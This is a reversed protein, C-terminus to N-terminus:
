TKGLVLDVVWCGRVHVQMPDRCHTLIDDSACGADQLADALIPMAGFDRSDYMMNALAAATITRWSPDFTVPRFPNGFVCRLVAALGDGEAAHAAADLAWGLAEAVGEPDRGDPAALFKAAEAAHYVAEAQNECARGAAAAARRRAAALEPPAAGGDAFREAVEVALRTRPDALLHWLRRCVACGALRLKRGGARGVVADPMRWLPDGALWEGETM